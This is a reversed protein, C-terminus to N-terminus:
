VVVITCRCSPHAPPRQLLKGMISSSFPSSLPIPQHGDLEACIECTRGGKGAQGMAAVWKKKAHMPLDGERQMAEWEMLNGQNRATVVETRAIMEARQRVLAKRYRELQRGAKAEPVGGDKLRQEMKLWAGAQRQNMGTVDRIGRAMRRMDWGEEMGTRLVQKVAEKSSNALDGVMLLGHDTMWVLAAREAPTLALDEVDFMEAKRIRVRGSAVGMAHLEALAAVAWAREVPVTLATWSVRSVEHIMEVPSGARAAAADLDARMNEVGALFARVM